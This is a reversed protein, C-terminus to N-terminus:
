KASLRALLPLWTVIVYVVAAAVAIALLAIGLSAQRPPRTTGPVMKRGIVMPWVLNERKYFAYFAIVAVHLVVMIQILKFSIGHIKAALRGADFSVLGALPGSEVGDIDVSFLGTGTQLLLLGILALVSLAGMPNHGPTHSPRRALLHRCYGIIAAPGRVFSRFRATESGFFGWALRFLVLTLITYGSRRHWALQDTEATYWSFLVLAVILWHFIRTAADWVPIAAPPRVQTSHDASDM